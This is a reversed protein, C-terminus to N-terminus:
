PGGSPLSRALECGSGTWRSRGAAALAAQAESCSSLSSPLGTGGLAGERVQGGPLRSGLSGVLWGPGGAGEEGNPAPRAEGCRGSKLSDWGGAGFSGTSVDCTRGRCGWRGPRKSEADQQRQERAKGSPFPIAGRVKLGRGPLLMPLGRERSQGARVGPLWALRPLFPPCISLGWLGGLAAQGGHQRPSCCPVARAGPPRM